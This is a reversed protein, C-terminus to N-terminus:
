TLGDSAKSVPNYDVPFYCAIIEFMDEVKNSLSFKKLFVPLLEFLLSLNRPDREGDIADMVGSVFQDEIQKLEASKNNIVYKLILFITHREIRQFNQCHVSSFLTLFLQNIQETPVQDM